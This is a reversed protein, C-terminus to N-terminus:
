TSVISFKARFTPTAIFLLQSKIEKSIGTDYEGSIQGSIHGRFDLSFVGQKLNSLSWGLVRVAATEKSKSSM